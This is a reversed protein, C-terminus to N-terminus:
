LVATPDPNVWDAPHLNALLRRNHEDFPPVAVPAGGARNGHM